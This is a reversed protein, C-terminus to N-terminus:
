ERSSSGGRCGDVRVDTVIPRDFPGRVVVCANPGWASRISPQSNPDIVQFLRCMRDCLDGAIGCSSAAVETGNNLARVFGSHYNGGKLLTQFAHMYM